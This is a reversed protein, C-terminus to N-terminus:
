KACADDGDKTMFSVTSRAMLTAYTRYLDVLYERFEPTDMRTGKLDKMFEDAFSEAYNKYFNAITTIVSTDESTICVM